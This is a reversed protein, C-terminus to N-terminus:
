FIISEDIDRGILRIEDDALNQADAAPQSHGVSGATVVAGSSIEGSGFVRRL